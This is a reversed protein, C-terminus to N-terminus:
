RAGSGLRRVTGPGTAASVPLARPTCVSLARPICAVTCGLRVGYLQQCQFLICAPRDPRYDRPALRPLGPLRARRTRHGRRDWCSCCSCCWGGAERRSAETSCLRTVESWKGHTARTGLFKPSQKASADSLGARHALSSGSSPGPSPQARASGRTRNPKLACAWCTGRGRQLRSLRTRDLKWSWPSM